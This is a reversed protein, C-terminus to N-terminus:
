PGLVSCLQGYFVLGDRYDIMEVMKRDDRSCGSGRSFLYEDGHSEMTDIKRKKILHDHNCVYCKFRGPMASQTEMDISM